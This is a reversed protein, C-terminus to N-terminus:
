SEGVGAGAHEQWEQLVEGLQDLTLADLTDLAEESAISEVLEYVGNMGEANRIRRYVGSKVKSAHPLTLPRVETVNGDDDLLEVETVFPLQKAEAEQVKSEDNKVAAIKRTNSM